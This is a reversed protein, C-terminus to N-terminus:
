TIVTSSGISYVYGTSRAIISWLSTIISVNFKLLKEESTDVGLAHLWAEDLANETDMLICFIGKEQANKIINGSVIYSKGAGSQGSDHRVGVPCQSSPGYAGVREPASGPLGDANRHLGAAVRLGAGRAGM